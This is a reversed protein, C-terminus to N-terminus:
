QNCLVMLNDALIGVYSHLLTHNAMINQLDPNHKEFILM